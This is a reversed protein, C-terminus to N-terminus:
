FLYPGAKKQSELQVQAAKAQGYAEKALALAEDYKNESAKQKADNILEETYAWAGGAQDVTKYAAEANSLMKSYQEQVDGGSEGPGDSAGSFLSCGSINLLLFIALFGRKM